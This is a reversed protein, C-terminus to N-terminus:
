RLKLKKVCIDYFYQVFYSIIMLLPIAVLYCLWIPLKSGYLYIILGLFQRHFLYAAFSGFSLFYWFKEAVKIKGLLKAFECIATLWCFDIIYQMAYIRSDNYLHNVSLAIIVSLVMIIIDRLYNVDLIKKNDSLLLGLPYYPYFLILRKHAGFKVAVLMLIFILVAVSLRTIKKKPLLIIPTIAYMLIIFSAYWVTKPVPPFFLSLGFITALYQKFNNIYDFDALYKVALLSTCAIFFLPWIRLFRKKYFSKVDSFNCFKNKGLLYGSIFTFCALVAFTFQATYHGRVDIHTYSCVHYVAIIWLMSLARMIDISAVHNKPIKILEKM